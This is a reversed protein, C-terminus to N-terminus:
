EEGEELIKKVELFPELLEEIDRFALINYMNHIKTKLRANEQQLSMNSETIDKIAKNKKAEELAPLM